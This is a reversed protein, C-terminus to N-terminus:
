QMIMGGDIMILQGTMYDSEGSALFSATGVVDEPYSYRKMLIMDEALQDMSQGEKEFKGIAVLDKDLQEWLETRVVGPGYGNVTINEAALAKAGGNIMALVAHKSCAYPVVDDFAQRSLISGVNIIKYPESQKGQKIMQKAAEQMGILTGLANIDMIQHWNEETIDLFMLPTNVGANNLMINISGFAEATAEVAAKVQDRKTVDVKAAIAQGGSAKIRAVVEQCGALNVDAVCIKAGQAAYHEAIAAGMGRAAGTIMVHKGTLRNTDM